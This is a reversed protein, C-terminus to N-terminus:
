LIFLVDCYDIRYLLKKVTVNIVVILFRLTISALCNELCFSSMMVRFEPLIRFVYEINNVNEAFVFLYILDSIINFLSYQFHVICM